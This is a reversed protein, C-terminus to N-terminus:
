HSHTEVYVVLLLLSFLENECQTHVKGWVKSVTVSYECDVIWDPINNRM